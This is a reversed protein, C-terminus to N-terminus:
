FKQCVFVLNFDNQEQLIPKLFANVDVPKINLAFLNQKCM